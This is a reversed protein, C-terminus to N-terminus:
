SGSRGDDQSIVGGAVIGGLVGAMLLGGRGSLGQGRAVQGNKVIMVRNNAAPPATQDAWMRYLGGHDGSLVVHQGAKLGQISFNGQADATTQAVERGEHFVTVPAEAAPQGQADVVQGQMVGGPALAVDLVAPAAAPVAAPAASTAAMLSAHPALMGAGALAVAAAKLVKRSKM